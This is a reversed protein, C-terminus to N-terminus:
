EEMEDMGEAKGTPTGLSELGRQGPPPGGTRLPSQAALTEPDVAAESKVGMAAQYKMGAQNLVEQVEAERALIERREAEVADIRTRKAAARAEMDGVLARMRALSEDLDPLPRMRPIALRGVGVAGSDDDGGGGSVVRLGEMAARTQAEEYAAKREADSDSDGDGDGDGGEGAMILEAIEARQRRRAAAAGSKGLELRGDEVFEDYGEGLDEDEAILRTADKKNKRSPLLSIFGDDNDDDQDDGSKYADGEKALRARREKKERIEVASPIHGGAPGTANSLSLDAAPVFVAGELESDDLAMMDDNDNGRDTSHNLNAPTNPTSSQLEELYERSYSPRQDERGAGFTRTPLGRSSSPSAARLAASNETARQNLNATTPNKKPTNYSPPEDSNTTTATPPSVDEGPGAGFSLRSSSAKKRLKSSSTRATSPRIVTPRSSSDDDDSERADLKPTTAADDTDNINISKRLSSSKVPRRTFKVSSPSLSPSDTPVLSSFPHYNALQRQCLFVDAFSVSHQLLFASEGDNVSEDAAASPPAATPEENEESVQIKRAKRKAGFMKFSLRM